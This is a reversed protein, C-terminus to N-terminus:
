ALLHAEISAAREAPFMFFDWYVTDCLRDWAAETTILNGFLDAMVYNHAAAWRYLTVREHGYQTYGPAGYEVSLIPRRAALLARAGNLCGIEGGEIDIKIYDVRPWMDLSDDLRKVEVSIDVVGPNPQNFIRERLGSEQPANQAFKFTTTGSTDSLAAATVTLNAPSGLREALSAALHPIPEFAHVAGSAGVLRLFVETHRGAHAGLDLVTHGPLILRRYAAELVPEWDIGIKAALLQRICVNCADARTVAGDVPALPARLPLSPAAAIPATTNQIRKIEYGLPKLAAKILQKM